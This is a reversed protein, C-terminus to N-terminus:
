PDRRSRLPELLARATRAAADYSLRAEFEAFSTRTLARYADRDRMLSAIDDAYADAGADVPYLRGNVGDRIATPIGGVAAALCPVGFANAECLVHGFTEARSPLLGFYEGPLHFADIQRRGDVTAM